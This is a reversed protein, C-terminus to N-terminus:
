IIFDFHIVLMSNAGIGHLCVRDAVSEKWPMHLKLLNLSGVVIVRVLLACWHAFGCRSQIFIQSTYNSNKVSISSFSLVLVQLWLRQILSRILSKQRCSSFCKLCVLAQVLARSLQLWRKKIALLLQHLPQLGGLIPLKRHTSRHELHCPFPLPRHHLRAHGFRGVSLARGAIQLFQHLIFIM